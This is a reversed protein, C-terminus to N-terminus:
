LMNKQRVKKREQQRKRAEMLTTLKEKMEGLVLQHRALVAEDSLDEEGNSEDESTIPSHDISRCFPSVITKVVPAPASPYTRPSAVSPLKVNDFNEAITHWDIEHTTRGLAVDVSDVDVAITSIELSTKKKTGPNPGPLLLTGGRPKVQTSGYPTSEAADCKWTLPASFHKPDYLSWSTALASGTGTPCPGEAVSM